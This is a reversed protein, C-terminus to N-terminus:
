FDYGLKLLGVTRDSGPLLVIGFAHVYTCEAGVYLHHAGGVTFNYRLGFTGGIRTADSVEQERDWWEQLRFPTTTVGLNEDDNEVVHRHEGIKCGGLLGVTMEFSGIPVVAEAQCEM